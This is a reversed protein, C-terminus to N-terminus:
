AARSRRVNLKPTSLSLRIFGRALMKSNAAQQEFAAAMDVACEELGTEDVFHAYQEHRADVPTVLNRGDEVADVRRSFRSNGELQLGDVPAFFVREPKPVFDDPRSSGHSSIPRTLLKRSKFIEARKHNSDVVPLGATSLLSLTGAGEVEVRPMPIEITGCTFFEGPQKVGSLVAELPKLEQNYEIEIYQL